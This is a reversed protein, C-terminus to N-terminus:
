GKLNLPLGAVIFVARPVAAAVTQHLRGAADRFRRALPNAPVIGQGVENSVLIVPGPAAALAREEAMRRSPAAGDAADVAEM